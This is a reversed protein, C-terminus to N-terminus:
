RHTMAIFSSRVMSRMRHCGFVQIKRQTTYALWFLQWKSKSESVVLVFVNIIPWQHQHSNLRRPKFDTSKVEECVCVYVLTDFDSAVCKARKRTTQKADASVFVRAVRTGVSRSSLCVLVLACALRNRESTSYMWHVTEKTPHKATGALGTYPERRIRRIKRKSMRKRETERKKARPSYVARTFNTSNIKKRTDDIETQARCYVTLSVSFKTM